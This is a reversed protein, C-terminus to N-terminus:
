RRKRGSRIKGPKVSGTPIALRDRLWDALIKAFPTLVPLAALAYHFAIQAHPDTSNM